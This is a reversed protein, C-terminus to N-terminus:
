NFADNPVNPYHYLQVRRPSNFCLKLQITPSDVVQPGWIGADGAHTCRNFSIPFLCFCSNSRCTNVCHVRVDLPKQNPQARGSNHVVILRSDGAACYFGAWLKGVVGRCVNADLSHLISPCVRREVWFFILAQM